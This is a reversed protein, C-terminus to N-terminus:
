KLPNELFFAVLLLTASQHERLRHASKHKFSFRHFLPTQLLTNSKGRIKKGKCSEDHLSELQFLRKKVSANIAAESFLFKQFTLEESFDSRSM